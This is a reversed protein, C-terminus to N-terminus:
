EEAVVTVKLQAVLERHLKVPVTHEGVEKIPEALAIRRRDVEFGEATLLEGIQLATVSGFVLLVLCWSFISRWSGRTSQGIM